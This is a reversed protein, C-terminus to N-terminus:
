MHGQSARQLMDILVLWAATCIHLVDLWLCHVPFLMCQKNWSEMSYIETGLDILAGVQETGDHKHHPLSHRRKGTLEKDDDADSVDGDGASGTQQASDQGKRAAVAKNGKKQKRQQKDQVQEPEESNARSAVAAGHTRKRSAGGKGAADSSCAPAASGEHSVPSGQEEGAAGTSAAATAKGAGHGGPRPPLDAAAAVSKRRKSSRGGAEERSGVEYGAKEVAATGDTSVASAARKTGRRGASSAAASKGKTDASRAQVPLQQQVQDVDMAHTAEDQADQQSSQAKSSTAKATKKMNQKGRSRQQQQQVAQQESDEVEGESEADAEDEVEAAASGQYLYPLEGTADVLQQEVALLQLRLQAVVVAAKAAQRADDSGADSAGAAAAAAAKVVKSWAADTAPSAPLTDAISTAGSTLLAAAATATEEAWAAPVEGQLLADLQKKYASWSSGAYPSSIKAAEAASSLEQLNDVSNKTAALQWGSFVAATDSAAAALRYDSQKCSGCLLVCTQPSQGQCDLM